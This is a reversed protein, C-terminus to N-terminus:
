PQQVPFLIVCSKMGANQFHFEVVKLNKNYSKYIAM